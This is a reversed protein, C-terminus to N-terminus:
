QKFDEVHLQAWNIFGTRWGMRYTWGRELTPHSSSSVPTHSWRPEYGERSSTSLYMIRPMTERSLFPPPGHRGPAPLAMNHRMNSQLAGGFDNIAFTQDTGSKTILIISQPAINWKKGLPIANELLFHWADKMSTLVTQYLIQCDVQTGPQVAVPWCHVDQPLEFNQLSSHRIPVDKWCWSVGSADKQVPLDTLGDKFINAFPVFSDWGKGEPIFGIDGVAFKHAPIASNTKWVYSHADAEISLMRLQRLSLPSPTWSDDHATLVNKIQTPLGPPDNGRPLLNAILATLQTLQWTPDQEAVVSHHDYQVIGRNPLMKLVATRITENLPYSRWTITARDLVPLGIVVKSSNDIRLSANELFDQAEEDSLSMQQQTYITAEVIDSYFRLMNEACSAVGFNRLSGVLFSEPSRTHVENSLLIFPTSVADASYGLMQPLNPHFLRQLAKVDRIWEKNARERSGEYRKILAPLWRGHSVTGTPRSRIPSLPPVLIPYECDLRAFHSSSYFAVGLDELVADSVIDADAEVDVDPLLSMVMKSEVTSEILQPEPFPPPPDEEPQLELKPLGSLTEVVPKMAYHIEILTSIQFSRAADDLREHYQGLATEISNKRLFRSKWSASAAQKMFGHISELTEQLHTLNKVLSQPASDWRGSMQDSINLLMTACRRALRNCGEKNAQSRGVQVTEMILLLVCVVATAPPFCSMDALDKTLSTLSVALQLIESNATRKALRRTLKLPM